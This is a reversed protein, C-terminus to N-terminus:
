TVPVAESMLIATAPTISDTPLCTEGIRTTRAFPRKM